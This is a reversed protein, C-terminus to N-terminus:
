LINELKIIIFEGDVYHWLNLEVVEVDKMKQILEKYKSLQLTYKNFPTNDLHKFKGLMKGKKKTLSENTKFDHIKIKGKEIVEILDVTGAIEDDHVIVESLYRNKTQHKKFAKVPANEFTNDYKLYYEISEHVWNGLHLSINKKKEWKELIEEQSTTENSCRASVVASNFTPVFQDIWKSVSTLEKEGLHYTHAEKNFTLTM